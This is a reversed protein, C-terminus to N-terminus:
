DWYYRDYCYFEEGNLTVTNEAGKPEYIAWLTENELLIKEARNQSLNFSQWHDNNDERTVEIYRCALNVGIRDKVEGTNHQYEDFLVPVADNSLDLLYYHDLRYGERSSLQARNINQQAIFGDINSVMMTATFGISFTFLLLGFRGQKKFLEMVIIGLILVALWPIFLHSYTRLRSFGYASEYLNLRYYSSVLIVLVEAFILVSLFSFLRKNANEQKKTITHFTLYIAISLVAVMVLEGFGKRAYEAFTYGEININETGGFFYRFQIIVFAGFLAVISAFVVTTEINGLFPKMWAKGPNPKGKHSNNYLAYLISSTFAYALVLIYFLRFTYEPLNEIKFIDFIGALSEKFIPDASALLAALVLVIPLAFVLGRLVAFIVRRNSHKNETSEPEGEFDLIYFDNEKVKM